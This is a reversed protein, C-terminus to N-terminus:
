QCASIGVALDPAESSLHEEAIWGRGIEDVEIRYWKNSFTEEIDIIEVESGVAIRAQRGSSAVPVVNTEICRETPGGVVYARDGVELPGEQLGIYALGGFLVGCAVVTLIMGYVYAMLRNTSPTPIQGRSVARSDLVQTRVSGSATVRNDSIVDLIIRHRRRLFFNAFLVPTLLGGTLTAITIALWWNMGTTKELITRSPSVKTVSYGNQLYALVAASMAPSPGESTTEKQKVKPASAPKQRQLQELSRQAEYHSPDLKLVRELVSKRDEDSSTILSVLWWANANDPNLDLFELLSAKALLDEGKDILRKIKVLDQILAM